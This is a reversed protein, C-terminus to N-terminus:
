GPAWRDVVEAPCAEGAVVLAVSGLGVPSLAVVASPTQTLVSVGEAVVVEAFDEPCSVVSEPVVVLRGGRLLAGFIEWVSVDFAYSHCQSWVGATPLGVDLSVLLQTVNRHTIAVGKAVGTTGSTYILYAVDDPAPAPMAACSFTQIRPDDVDIVVVDFGDLRSRLGTATVVALPAADGLMFGIRERPHGPDIPLYAAGTKLVALIAVVAEVSRSLLVGVCRGCGVGHSALLHALRNAAEDVERYTLGRGEFSVAVAEPSRGVQAAFLEPVSVPVPVLGSRSLVGGHGWGDLRAREDAGLLNVSSLLRTPDATLGVLVRELRQVLDRAGCDSLWQGAGASGSTTESPQAGLFLRDDDIFFDLGFQDVLNTHTLTGTATAGAINALHTTPIFNLIVRNPAQASGRLHAKNEIARVPFRQHQLAERLRADVHECFSSVESGPSARLALPVFGTVMGPVTQAEPRVRRSVPFEFVVDSSEVDCGLVLLACAATLVSSRRVGLAESFEQIGAVVVPDLEVPVSSEYPDREGAAAAAPAPALRYRTENEQPLNETWYAQDDLYDASAEYESEWAILDGLSGFYAPPISAGSAVASYVDGIRHCVLALGIGDAVIHHCCVFFYFENVRTQLLAFKFLPGTLPMVTRQISSALRHAERVPDQAGRLDHCALEVDPCDVTKQFVQGDVQFFVARLPEAERVVQRVAWELSGPDVIGELRVLYGLQWRAALRDTEQALWIDLQGRM